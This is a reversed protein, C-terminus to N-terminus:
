SLKNFETPLFRKLTKYLLIGLMWASIVEGICVTLMVLPLAQDVVGFAYRIVFPIILTNAIVTPLPVLMPHARLLRGGIAGILTALAGFVIDFVNGSFLLNSILCGVTIGPVAAPTAACLICLSESIRLQIANSSLGLAASVATLAVYLAGIIGALCLQRTRQLNKM